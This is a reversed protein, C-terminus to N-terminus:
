FQSLMEVSARLVENIDMPQDTVKGIRPNETDIEISANCYLLISKPHCKLLQEAAPGPQDFVGLQAERGNNDALKLADSASSALCVEMGQAAFLEAILEGRVQNHFFVIAKPRFVQDLDYDAADRSPHALLAEMDTLHDTVSQEYRRVAALREGTVVGEEELMVAILEAYGRATTVLSQLNHRLKGQNKDPEAGGDPTQAASDPAEVFLTIVDDDVVYTVKLSSTGYAFSCSGAQHPDFKDAALCAAIVEDASDFVLNLARNVYVVELDRNVVFCPWPMSQLAIPIQPETL